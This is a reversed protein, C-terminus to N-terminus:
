PVVPPPPPEPPVNTTATATPVNVAATPAPANTSPVANAALTNGRLDAPPATLDILQQPADVGVAQRIVALRQLVDPIAQAVAPAGGSAARLALMSEDLAKVGNVLKKREDALRAM